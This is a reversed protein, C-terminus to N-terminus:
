NKGGQELLHDVMAVIKPYTMKRDFKEEALRRGNHGMQEREAPDLLYLAEIASALSEPDEPDYNIGFRYEALLDRLEPNLSGNLMPKGSALYDGVKNTISQPAKKRIANIVAGSGALHRQMLTHDVWGTFIANSDIIRAYERFEEELPGSGIIVPRVPIGRDRAKQAGDLLTLIDYSHGLSGIYAIRFEDEPKELGTPAEEPMADIRDIDSGIFVYDKARCKRNKGAAADMYTKSVAMIGDAMAYVRDAKLRIPLFLLRSIVPIDLIMAVMAEPWLDQVDIVFPIGRSKAYRGATLASDLGPVCSYVLDFPETEAELFRKLSQTFSAMSRVRRLSINHSYGIERLLVIRYPASGYVEGDTRFTRDLERFRSTAVTVAYGKESLMEAIRKFRSRNNGQEGPLQTFPAVILVKKM